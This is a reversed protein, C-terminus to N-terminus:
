KLLEEKKRQFEEETLIGKDRFESLKELQTIFDNYKNATLNFNKGYKNDEVSDLMMFAIFIIFGLPIFNILYWWGNKNIDHLRRISVGIAPIIHFFIFIASFLGIGHERDFTGVIGDIFAFLFIGMTYFLMFYWYEKRQARGDFIAYERLAQLYLNM